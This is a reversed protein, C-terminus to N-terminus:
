SELAAGPWMIVRFVLRFINVILVNYLLVLVAVYKELIKLVIEPYLWFGLYCFWSSLMDSVGIYFEDCNLVHTEESM